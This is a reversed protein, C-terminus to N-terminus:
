QWFSFKPTALFRDAASPEEIEMPGVPGFKIDAADIEGATDSVAETTIDKEEDMPIKTQNPSAFNCRRGVGM